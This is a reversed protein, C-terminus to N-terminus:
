KRCCVGKPYDTAIGHFCSSDVRPALLIRRHQVVDQLMRCEELGHNIYWKGHDDERYSEESCQATGDSFALVGGILVPLSWARRATSEVRYVCSYAWTALGLYWVISVVLLLSLRFLLSARSCWM